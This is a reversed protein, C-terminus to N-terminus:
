KRGRKTKSVTPSETKTPRGPTTASLCERVSPNGGAFTTEPLSGPETDKSATFSLAGNLRQEFNEIWRACKRGKEVKAELAPLDRTKERKETRLREGEIDLRSKVEKLFVGRADQAQASMEANAVETLVEHDKMLLM